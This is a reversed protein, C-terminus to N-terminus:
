KECGDLNPMRAWIFSSVEITVPKCSVTSSVTAVRM